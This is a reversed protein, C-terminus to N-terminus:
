GSAAARTGTLSVLTAFEDEVGRALTEADAHAADATISLCLQNSWTLAIVSPGMGHYLPGAPYFQPVPLDLFTPEDVVVGSGNSVIVNCPWSIREALGLREITRFLATVVPGPVYENWQRFLNVGRREQLQKVARAHEAIAALRDLPDAIDDHLNVKLVTTTGVNDTVYESTDAGRMAYPVAAVLPRDPLAGRERLVDHLAKGVCHLLVHNVTTSCTEAIQKVEDIPLAVVAATSTGSLTCNFATRPAKVKLHRSSREALMTRASLAALAPLRGLRRWKRRAADALIAAPRAPFTASDPTHRAPLARLDGSRMLYGVVDMASDGDVLLHHVVSILYGREADDELVYIHWLPKSRDLHTARVQALAKAAGASGGPAPMPLVTVHDRVDTHPATVLMPRDPNFWPDYLTKRYAPILHIRNALATVVHDYLSGSLKSRDVPVLTMGNGVQLRTEQYLQWADMGGIREAREFSM